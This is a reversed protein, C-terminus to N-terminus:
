FWVQHMKRETTWIFNSEVRKSFSMLGNIEPLACKHLAAVILAFSNKATSASLILKGRNPMVWWRKYIRVVFISGTDEQEFLDSKIQRLAKPILADWYSCSVKAFINISNTSLCLKAIKEGGGGTLGWMTNWCSPAQDLNSVVVLM